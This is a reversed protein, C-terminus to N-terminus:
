GYYKSSLTKFNLGVQEVGGSQQISLILVNTMTYLLYLNNGRYLELWATPFVTGNCCHIFMPRSLSDLGKAISVDYVQAAHPGGATPTNGMGFSVSLIASWASIPAGFELYADFSAM